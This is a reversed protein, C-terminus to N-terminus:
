DEDWDDEDAWAPDDDWVETREAAIELAHTAENATEFPGLRDRNACGDDDGEVAKHRLCYWYAMTPGNTERIMTAM